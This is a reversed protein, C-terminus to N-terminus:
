ECFTSDNGSTLRWRGPYTERTFEVIGDTRRSFNGHIAKVMMDMAKATLPREWRQLVCAALEQSSMAQGTERLIELATRTGAGKPLCAPSKDNTVKAPVTAPDFDKAFLALVNEVSGIEVRLATARLQHHQYEGKLRALKEKLASVVHPEAM